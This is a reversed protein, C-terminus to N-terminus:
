SSPWTAGHSDSLFESLTLSPSAEKQNGGQTSASTHTVTCVSCSPQFLSGPAQCQARFHLKESCRGAHSPYAKLDNFISKHLARMM